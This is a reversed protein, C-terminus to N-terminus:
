GRSPVANRASDRRRSRLLGGHLGARHAAGISGKEAKSGRETRAPEERQQGEAGSRGRQADSWPRASRGSSDFLGRM